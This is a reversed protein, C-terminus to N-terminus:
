TTEYLNVIIFLVFTNTIIINIKNLIISRPKKFIWSRKVSCIDLHGKKIKMNHFRKSTLLMVKSFHLIGMCVPEFGTEVKM